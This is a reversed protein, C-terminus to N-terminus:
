GPYRLRGPHDFEEVLGVLPLPLDIGALHSISGLDGPPLPDGSGPYGLDHSEEM